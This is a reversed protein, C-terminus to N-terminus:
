IVPNSVVQPKRTTATFGVSGYDNFGMNGFEGRDSQDKRNVSNNNGPKQQITIGDSSHHRGGETAAISTSTDPVENEGGVMYEEEQPLAFDTIDLGKEEMAIKVLADRTLLGDAYMERAKDYTVRQNRFRFVARIGQLSEKGTEETLSIGERWANDAIQQMHAPGYIRWYMKALLRTLISRWEMVSSRLEEQSLTSTSVRAQGGIAGLLLEPPVGLASCVLSLMQRYVESFQKPPDHLRINKVSTGPPLPMLNRWAPTQNQKRIEGTDTVTNVQAIVSRAMSEAHTRTTIDRIVNSSQNAAEAYMNMENGFRQQEEVSIAYRGRPNIGGGGGGSIGGPLGALSINRVTAAGPNMSTIGIGGDGGDSTTYPQRYASTPFRLAIDEPIATPNNEVVMPLYTRSCDLQKYNELTQQMFVLEQLCGRVKSCVEGNPNPENLVFVDFFEFRNSNEPQAPLTRAIPVPLYYRTGHQDVRWELKFDRPDPARPCVEGGDVDPRPGYTFVVVGTALAFTFARKVEHLWVGNLINECFWRNPRNSGESSGPVDITVDIGDPCISSWLKDRVFMFASNRDTVTMVDNISANNIRGIRQSLVVASTDGRNKPRWTGYRGTPMTSVSGDTPNRRGSVADFIEAKSAAESAASNPPGPLILSSSVGVASVPVLNIPSTGFSDGGDHKVAAAIAAGNEDKGSSSVLAVQLDKPNQKVDENEKKRHKKEMKKREKDSDDSSGSDSADDPSKERQRRRHRQLKRRDKEEEDSSSSSSNSDDDRHKKASHRHLRGEQYQEEGGGRSGEQQPYKRHAIYRQRRSSSSSSGCSKKELSSDKGLRERANYYSVSTVKRLRSMVVSPDDSKRYSVLHHPPADSTPHQRIKSNIHRGAYSGYGPARLLM